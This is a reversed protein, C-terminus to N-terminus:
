YDYENSKNFSCYCPDPHKLCELTLINQINEGFEVNRKTKDNSQQIEDDQDITKTAVTCTCKNYQLHCTSCIDETINESPLCQCSDIDFNCKECNSNLDDILNQQQSELDNDPKFGTSQEEETFINKFNNESTKKKSRKQKAINQGENEQIKENDEEEEETEQSDQSESEESYYKKKSNKFPMHKFIQEEFDHPLKSFNPHYSFLQLNTFHAKMTRGNSLNKITASSEHKDLAMIVYPGTFKPKMGMNMGTAVQLQKYLVVEGIQFTKNVM